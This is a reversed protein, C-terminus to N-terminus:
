RSKRHKKPSLFYVVGLDIVFQSYTGAIYKTTLVADYYDNIIMELGIGANAGLGLDSKNDLGETGTDVLLEYRSILGTADLGAMVVIKIEEQRFVQYLFDVDGQFMYNRISETFTSKKFRNYVTISPALYGKPMLKIYPKVWFGPNGTRHYNYNIGSSFALGGGIKELQASAALPFIVLLLILIRRM